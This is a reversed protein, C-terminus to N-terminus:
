CINALHWDDHWYSNTLNVSHALVCTSPYVPLSRAPPQLRGHVGHHEVGDNRRRRRPLQQNLHAPSSLVGRDPPVGDVGIYDGGPPRRRLHAACLHCATAHRPSTHLSVYLSSTIRPVVITRIVLTGVDPTCVSWLPVVSITRSRSSSLSSFTLSASVLSFLYSYYYVTM